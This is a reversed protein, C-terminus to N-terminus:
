RTAPAHHRYRWRRARMKVSGGQTPIVSISGDQELVALRVDRVSEVGHERIAAELDDEDLGERDIAGQVWRGDRAVVSAPPTLLRHVVHFRRRALAVGHNLSFITVVIVLAGPISADPGTIAPQLANAGLLVAALDFITFQGLERKGSIRLAALFIAYVLISRAVLELVPVQLQLM